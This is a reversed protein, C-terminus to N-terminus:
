DDREHEGELAKKFERRIREDAERLKVLLAGSTLDHEHLVKRREAAVIAALAGALDTYYKPNHIYEEVGGDKTSRTKPKGVIYCREDADIVWGDIRLM